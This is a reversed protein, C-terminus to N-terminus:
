CSSGQYSGLCDRKRGVYPSGQLIEEMQRNRQTVGTGIGRFIDELIPNYIRQNQQNRRNNNSARQNNSNRENNNSARENNLKRKNNNSARENNLKRENNNSARENNSVTTKIKTSTKSVIKVVKIEEYNKATFRCYSEKRFSGSCDWTGKLEVINNETNKVYFIGGGNIVGQKFFGVFKEPLFTGGLHFIKLQKKQSIKYLLADGRGQYKIQKANKPFFLTGYGNYMGKKFQGEYVGRFGSFIGKGEKKSLNFEGVYSTGNSYNIEGYCPKPNTPKNNKFDCKPLNSDYSISKTQKNALNFTNEDVLLGKNWEQSIKQGSALTLIGEGHRKDNKWKGEFKSGNFFFKKGKGHPKGVSFEGLYYNKSNSYYYIGHGDLKNNQLGGVYKDGSLFTVVGEGNLKNNIFEGIYINENNYNGIGIEKITKEGSYKLALEYKNILLYADSILEKLENIEFQSLLVNAESQNLLKVGGTPWGREIRSKISNFLESKESEENKSLEILNKNEKLKNDKKVNVLHLKGKTTVVEKYCNGDYRSSNCIETLIEPSNITSVLPNIDLIAQHRKEFEDRVDSWSVLNTEDIEKSSLSFPIFYLLVSFFYFLFHKM